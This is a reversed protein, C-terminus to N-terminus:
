APKPSNELPGSLGRAWCIQMKRGSLNSLWGNPDPGKVLMVLENGLM